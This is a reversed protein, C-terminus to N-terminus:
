ATTMQLASYRRGLLEFGGFLIASWVLTGALTWKFFPIAAVFCAALGYTSLSYMGSTLWVFFNTVVFFAIASSLSFLLVRSANVRTRLAFGLAVTLAICTYVVPIMSHLGIILDSLFMAALPVIFALRRDAFYAGGFLAISEVPTFNYPMAGPAFAIVLRMAVAFFIMGVLVFFRPSFPSHNATQSM